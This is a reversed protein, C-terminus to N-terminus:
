SFQDVTGTEKEATCFKQNNNEHLSTIFKVLEVRKILPEVPINSIIKQPVQIANDTAHTYKVEIYLIFRACESM